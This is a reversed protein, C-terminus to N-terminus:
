SLQNIVSLLQYIYGVLQHPNQILKYSLLDKYIYPQFVGLIYLFVNM